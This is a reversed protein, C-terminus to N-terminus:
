LDDPVFWVFFWVAGFVLLLGVVAVVLAVACRSM